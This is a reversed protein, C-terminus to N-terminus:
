LGDRLRDVPMRFSLTMKPIEFTITAAEDMVDGRYYLRSHAQVIEILSTRLVEWDEKTLGFGETAVLAKLLEKDLGRKIMQKFTQAEASMAEPVQREHLRVDIQVRDTRTTHRPEEPRPTIFDGMRMSRSMDRMLLGSLMNDLYGSTEWVQRMMMEDKSPPKDPKVPPAPPSMAANLADIRNLAIEELAVEVPANAPSTLAEVEERRIAEDMTIYDGYRIPPAPVEVGYDGLTFRPPKRVRITDPRGEVPMTNTQGELFRILAQQYEAAELRSSAM